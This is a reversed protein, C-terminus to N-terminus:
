IYLFRETKNQELHWHGENRRGWFQPAIILKADGLWAPLWAFSSNSILLYKAYRISRWNMEINSVIPFCPFFKSAEERDDTHVEFKM